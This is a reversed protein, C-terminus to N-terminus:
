SHTPRARARIGAVTDVMGLAALVVLSLGFFLALLYTAALILSRGPRGRTLAHLVALGILSFGFGFAGAVASAAEGIMGPVFAVAVAGLLVAVAWRPFEATWPPPRPRALRGSLEAICAGLWTNFVLMTLAGAATVYPLLTVYVRMLSELQSRPISTDGSQRLWTEMADIAQTTLTRTDYGSALGIVILGCAVIGAAHLLARGPPYWERAGDPGERSLGLLYTTWAIPGAVLLLAAAASLPGATLAVGFTVTLAGAAAAVPGWAFGAIALPLPSVVFLPLAYASGALLAALLLMAALGAGVGILLKVQM